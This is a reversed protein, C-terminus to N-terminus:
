AKPRELVREIFRNQVVLTMGRKPLGAVMRRVGDNDRPDLAGVRVMTPTPPRLFDNKTDLDFRCWGPGEKWDLPLTDLSAGIMRYSNIGGQEQEMYLEGVYSGNADAYRRVIALRVPRPVVLRKIFNYLKTLVIGEREAGAEAQRV